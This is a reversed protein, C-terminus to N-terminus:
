KRKFFDRIQKGLTKREQVAQQQPQNQQALEEKFAKAFTDMNYEGYLAVSEVVWEPPGFDQVTMHISSEPHDRVNELLGRTNEDASPIFTNFVSEIDIGRREAVFRLLVLSIVLDRFDSRGGDLLASVIGIQFWREDDKSHILFGIRRIFYWLNDLLKHENGCYSYIQQRQDTNSELYLEALRAFLQDAPHSGINKWVDDVDQFQYAINETGFSVQWEFFRNEFKSQEMIKWERVFRGVAPTLRKPHSRPSAASVPFAGLWSLLELYRPAYGLDAARPTPHSKHICSESDSAVV